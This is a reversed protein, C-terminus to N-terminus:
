CVAFRFSEVKDKGIFIDCSYEGITDCYYIYNCKYKEQFLPKILIDNVYLKTNNKLEIFENTYKIVQHFGAKISENLIHVNKTQPVKIVSVLKDNFTINKTNENHGVLIPLQTKNALLNAEELFSKSPCFVVRYM